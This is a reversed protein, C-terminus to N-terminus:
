LPNAFGFHAAVRENYSDAIRASISSAECGGIRVLVVGHKELLREKAGAEDLLREGYIRFEPEGRAIDVQAWITGAVPPGLGISVLLLCIAGVGSAVKRKRQIARM